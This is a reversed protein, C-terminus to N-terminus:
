VCECVQSNLTPLSLPTHMGLGGGGGLCQCVEFCRSVCMYKGIRACDRVDHLGLAAM